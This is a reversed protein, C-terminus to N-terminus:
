QLSTALLETYILLFEDLQNKAFYYVTNGFKIARNSGDDKGKNNRKKNNCHNIKAELLSVKKVLELIENKFKVLLIQDDYLLIKYNWKGPPVTTSPTKYVTAEYLLKSNLMDEFGFANVVETGFSRIQYLKKESNLNEVGIKIGELSKSIPLYDLHDQSTNNLLDTLLLVYRPLRQVVTIQYDELSRYKTKPSDQLVQLFSALMPRSKKHKQLTNITVEYDLIYQSFRSLLEGQISQFLDAVPMENYNGDVETLRESFAAVLYKSLEVIPVFAPYNICKDLDDISLFGGDLIQRYYVDHLINLGELFSKESQIIEEV